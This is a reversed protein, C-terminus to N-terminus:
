RGRRTLYVIVAETALDIFKDSYGLDKLEWKFTNGLRAKKYVGLKEDKMFTAARDATQELIKTVRAPSLQKTDDSEMAPPYHKAVQGALEKAFQDVERGSSLWSLLGM